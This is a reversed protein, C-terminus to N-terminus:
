GASFFLSSIHPSRSARHPVLSLSLPPYLSWLALRCLWQEEKRENKCKTFADKCVSEEFIEGKWKSKGKRYLNYDLLQKKPSWNQLKQHRIPESRNQGTRNEDKLLHNTSLTILAAVILSHM